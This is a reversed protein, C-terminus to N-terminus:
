IAPPPGEKGLPAAPTAARRYASPPIGLVDRFDASLHAHDAYGLEAAVAAITATPDERLRQAAEQLRYRRIVALPPVGICRRALRQVTRASVGLRAAVDEVRVVGRDGAIADEMANALLGEEGPPDLHEAAWAAFAAVAARRGADEDPSGMAETVSAVLGSAVLGPAALEEEADRIRAPDPHLRVLAAPRLLAGVAWGIGRLDRHSARTTPGSLMARGDEVVLNSAPFPLLEQRSVRGPAIRWRPIWFWRVLGELGPPAPERHFTPLRAPYLIGRADALGDAM